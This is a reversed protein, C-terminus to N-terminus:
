VCMGLRGFASISLGAFSGLGFRTLLELAEFLRVNVNCRLSATTGHSYRQKLLTAEVNLGINRGRLLVYKGPYTM